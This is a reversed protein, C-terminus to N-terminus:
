FRIVLTLGQFRGNYSGFFNSEQDEHSYSLYTGCVTLVDDAGNFGCM